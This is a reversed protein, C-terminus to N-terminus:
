GRTYKVGESFPNGKSNQLPPPVIFISHHGKWCILFNSSIDIRKSVTGANSLCPSLHVSTCLSVSNSSITSQMCLCASARYFLSHAHRCLIGGGGGGTPARAGREGGLLRLTATIEWASYTGVSVAAPMSLPTQTFRGPSRSRQGKSLLPIRTM